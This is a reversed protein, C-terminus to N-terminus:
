LYLIYKDQQTIMAYMGACLAALAFGICIINAWLGPVVGNLTLDRFYSIYHFMPNFHILHFIRPPLIEVPYMIASLFMWLTIGVSYIYGIDRFFVMISSLLMGFGLAFVFTYLIPLPVLLMTWSFTERTAIFVILFAIFSFLVNVLSSVVQSVPFIYKPIYAKKIVAGNGLVSTMALSTSESFFNFILQGSLVYLPFNPIDARFLLSFVMSIVLMTLLPNLVSWLIGLVSRRYRTVFDRKVMMFLLHRFRYLTAIHGKVYDTKTALILIFVFLIAVTFALFGAYLMLMPVNGPRQGAVEIPLYLFFPISLIVTLGLAITGYHKKTM